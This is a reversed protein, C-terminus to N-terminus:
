TSVDIVKRQVGKAVKGNIITLDIRKKDNNKESDMGFTTRILKVLAVFDNMTIVPPPCMIAGSLMRLQAGATLAKIQDELNDAQNLEQMVQILWSDIAKMYDDPDGFNKFSKLANRGDMPTPGFKAAHSKRIGRRDKNAEPANQAIRSDDYKADLGWEQIKADLEEESLASKSSVKASKCWSKVSDYSCGLMKAIKAGSHGDSFMRLAKRRVSFSYVIKSM